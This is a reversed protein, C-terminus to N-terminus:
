PRWIECVAPVHDWYTATTVPTTGPTKGPHTCRGVFADSIVHDIRFGAYTPTSSRATETIFRYRAGPATVTGLYDASPDGGALIVPDTNFDGLVLNASESAAPVGDGRDEFVLRLESARCSTDESSFGSRGHVNVLGLTGGGILDLTAWSMRGAGSCGDAPEASAMGVLCFTGEPCGRITGFDRRVGVCNDDHGFACASTYDPGLIREMQTPSGPVYGRCLLDLAPDAVIDACNGDYFAEQFVIVHPRTRAVFDAMAREAPPWSLGNGYLADAVAAMESTYGDGTGDAEGRDHDLEPATGVNVTVVVFVEAGPPPELPPADAASADRGGDTAPSPSVCGSLGLGITLGVWGLTEPTRMRRTHRM